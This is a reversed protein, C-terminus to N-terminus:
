GNINEKEKYNISEKIIYKPLGTIEQIIRQIYKGLIGISFLILGGFFITILIQATFGAVSIEGVFYKILYYVGMIFAILSSFLGIMSVIDLPLTSVNIISNLTETVLKKMGYGSKGYEREHHEVIVNGINKTSLFIIPSIQPKSSKYNVITKALENKMIRFSNSKIGKPRGYLKTVLHNTFKSGLKRYSRQKVEEYVGFVCDYQGLEIADIMKPIEEPLHQLDDDMTIVYRGKAIDLGCVTAIFQGNNYLTNISVVSENKESIKKMTPWVNENPSCDNVLIIEYVKDTYRDMVSIIRETLEELWEGSNYVPIVVSYRTEM